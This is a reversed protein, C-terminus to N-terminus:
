RLRRSRAVGCGVHGLALLSWFAAFVTFALGVECIFRPLFGLQSSAFGVEAVVKRSLPFTQFALLGFSGSTATTSKEPPAIRVPFTSTFSLDHKPKYRQEFCPPALCLFVPQEPCPELTKDPRLHSCPKLGGGSLGAGVVWSRLSCGAVEPPQPQARGLCRPMHSSGFRSPYCKKERERARKLALFGLRRLPKQEYPHSM